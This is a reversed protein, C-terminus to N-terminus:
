LALHQWSIDDERRDRRSRPLLVRGKPNGPRSVAGHSREDAGDRSFDDQSRDTNGAGICSIRGLLRWSAQPVQILVFVCAYRLPSVLTSTSNEIRTTLSEIIAALEEDNMDDRIHPGLFGPPPLRLNRTTHTRRSPTMEITPSVLPPSSPSHADTVASLAELRLVLKSLERVEEIDITRPGTILSRPDAKEVNARLENSTEFRGALSKPYLLHLKEPVVM